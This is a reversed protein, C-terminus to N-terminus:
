TRSEDASSRQAGRWIWRDLQKQGNRRKRRVFKGRVGCFENIEKRFRNVLSKETCSLALLMKSSCFHGIATTSFDRIWNLVHKRTNISWIEKVFNIRFVFGVQRRRFTEALLFM